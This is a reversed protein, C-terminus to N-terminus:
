VNKRRLSKESLPTASVLKSGSGDPIDKVGMVFGTFYVNLLGKKILQRYLGSTPVPDLNEDQIRYYM